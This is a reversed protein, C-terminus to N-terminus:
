LSEIVPDDTAVIRRSAAQLADAYETPRHTVYHLWAPRVIQGDVEITHLGRETLAKCLQVGAAPDAAELLLLPERMGDVLAALQRVARNRVAARMAAEAADIRDVAEEGKTEWEGITAELTGIAARAGAVTQKTRELTKEGDKIRRDLDALKAPDVPHGAIFADGQLKELHGVLEALDHVADAEAGITDHAKALKGRFQEVAAHATRLDDRAAQLKFRARKEDRELDADTVGEFRAQPIERKLDNIHEQLRALEDGHIRDWTTISSEAQSRRTHLERRQARVTEARRSGEDLGRRVEDDLPVLAADVEAITAQARNVVEARDTCLSAAETEAKSIKQEIAEITTRM